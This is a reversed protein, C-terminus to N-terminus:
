IGFIAFRTAYKGQVQYATYECQEVITTRSSEPCNDTHVKKNGDIYYGTGEDCTSVKSCYNDEFIYHNLYVCGGAGWTGPNLRFTGISSYLSQIGSLSDPTGYGMPNCGTAEREQARANITNIAWQQTNYGHYTAAYDALGDEFTAYSKCGGSNPCGVGWHNNDGRANVGNESLATILVLEPNVSYKLSLDYIEDIHQAFYSNGKGTKNLYETALFVYEDKSFSTTFLPFAGGSAPRPNDPDIYDLPDVAASGTNQGIRIEFHLHAGTSSGSSGMKGIVQGQSVSDGARVTISDAYLHGYLTYNGDSHQIIVYNGYGGGCSNGYSGTPCSLPSEDSPYVVTGSKAAIINVNGLGSGGTIDLGSHFSEKGEIVRNGYYSSIAVTEPDGSAFTVGNEETTEASGIPWWYLYSGAISFGTGDDNHYLDNYEEILQYIENKIREIESENTEDELEYAFININVIFMNMLIILSLFSCLIRRM